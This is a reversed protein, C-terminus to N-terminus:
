GCCARQRVHALDRRPQNKPSSDNAFTCRVRPTHVVIKNSHVFTNTFRHKYDVNSVLISPTSPRARPLRATSRSKRPCLSRETRANRDRSRKEATGRRRGVEAPPCERIRPGAACWSRMGQPCVTGDPSCPAGDRSNAGLFSATCAGRKNPPRRMVVSGLAHRGRASHRGEVDGM